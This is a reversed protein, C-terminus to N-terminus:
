EKDMPLYLPLRFSKRRVHALFRQTMSRLKGGIAALGSGKGENNYVTFLPYIVRELDNFKGKNRTYRNITFVTKSFLSLNTTTIAQM